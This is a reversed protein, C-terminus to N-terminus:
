PTACNSLVLAANSDRGRCDISSEPMSASFPIPPAMVPTTVDIGPITCCAPSNTLLGLSHARCCKSGDLDLAPGPTIPSLGNSCACFKATPETNGAAASAALGASATAPLPIPLAPVATASAAVLGPTTLASLREDSAPIAPDAMLRFGIPTAVPAAALNAASFSPSAPCRLSARLTLSASAALAASAGGTGTCSGM